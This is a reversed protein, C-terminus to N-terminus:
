GRLGFIRPMDQLLRGIPDASHENWPSEFCASGSAAHVLGAQVASLKRWAESRSLSNWRAAAAANPEVHVVIRDARMGALEPAEVPREWDAEALAAPIALELDDYLVTGARRGWVSLRHRAVVLVLVADRGVLPALRERIAGAQRDYRRLWAAAEEERELFAALITLHSRWGDKWSLFLSPALERLKDQEEPPVLENMGVIRDPGAQRLAGLNFEYHHSLRTKVEYGYKSRYHDTWYQDMPAASPITQLALLQGINIWSYAAISRKQNRQYVAPAFGVQKKFLSSFYSESKYGIREVIEALPLGAESMLRKAETLRLETRYEMVGRGFREKFLRMFHFRSLGAIRALKVITIESAYQRELEMRAAELALETQRERYDIALSLLELLGAECRLRGSASGQSWGGSISGFLQGAASGSSITAEGFFPFRPPLAKYAAASEEGPPAYAHFYLLLLELPHGAYNTWELLQGPACVFLSGPRLVHLRGDIILRGGNAGSLLLLHSPAAIFEREARPRMPDDRLVRVDLLRYCLGVAAPPQLDATTKKNM